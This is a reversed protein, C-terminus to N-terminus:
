SKEPTLPPCFPGNQGKEGSGFVPLEKNRILKKEEINKIEKSM